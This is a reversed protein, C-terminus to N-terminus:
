TPPPSTPPESSPHHPPVVSSERSQALREFREIQQDLNQVSTSPDINVPICADTRGLLCNTEANWIELQGNQILAKLLRMHDVVNRFARATGDDAILIGREPDFQLREEAFNLGVRFCVQRNGSLCDVILCGNEVVILQPTMIEFAHLPAVDRMRISVKPLDVITEVPVSEGAKLKAVMESGLLVRFGELEHLHERYITHSSKVGLEYEILHEGLAKILPLDKQLRDLDDPDEPDVLPESYAHAVACRGSRWLYDGIDSVTRRLEEVRSKARHDTLLDVAKNIWKGHDTGKDHLINLIKFFGLFQYADSNLGLAERYLALALRARPDVPDPLYDLRFHPNLLRVHALGSSRGLGIHIPHSGGTIGIERLRGQLVWAVSSLFQRVTRLAEEYTGPPGYKTIVDPSWKDTEPRLTLERGRFSNNTEETAWFVGNEVGVVLWSM